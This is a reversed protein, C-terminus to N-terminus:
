PCRWVSHGRHPWDIAVAGTQSARHSSALLLHRRLDHNGSGRLERIRSLQQDCRRPPSDRTQWPGPLQAHFCLGHRPNRRNRFLARCQHSGLFRTASSCNPRNDSKGPASGINTNPSDFTGPCLPLKGIRDDRGHFVQRYVLDRGGSGDLCQLPSVLASRTVVSTSLRVAM